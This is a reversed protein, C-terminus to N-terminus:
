DETKTVTIRVLRVSADLDERVLTYVFVGPQNLTIAIRQEGNSFFSDSVNSTSSLNSTHIFPTLRWEADTKFSTHWVSGVPLTVEQYEFPYPSQTQLQDPADAPTAYQEPESSQPESPATPQESPKPETTKPETAKPETTNPETTNPETTNPETAKPETPKPDAANPETSKPESPQPASPVTEEVASLREPTQTELVIEKQGDHRKIFPRETEEVAELLPSTPPPLYTQEKERLFGSLRVAGYGAGILLAATTVGVAIRGLVVSTASRVTLGTTQPLLRTVTKSNGLQAPANQVGRWGSLLMPVSAGALSLDKSKRVANELKKRGHHLQTKVTGQSVGLQQAIEKVSYQECYYLILVTRQGDPLESLLQQVLAAQEKRELVYEPTQSSVPEPPLADEEDSLESFLLPQKQRLQQKVENVAIRKLWASVQEPKQLKDLHTFASLYTEQMVDMADADNKAMVRVTRWLESYTALYLEEMAGRDGDKARVVLAQLADPTNTKQEM